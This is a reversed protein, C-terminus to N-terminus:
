RNQYSYYAADRPITCLQKGYCCLTQPSFEYQLFLSSFVLVRDWKNNHLRKTWWPLNSEAPLNNTLVSSLKRVIEYSNLSKKKKQM